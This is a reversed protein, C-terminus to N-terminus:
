RSIVFQSSVKDFTCKALSNSDTDSLTPATIDYGTGISTIFMGDQYVHSRKLEENLLAVFDDYSVLQKEHELM